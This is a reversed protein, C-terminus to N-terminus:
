VTQYRRVAKYIGNIRQQDVVMPPYQHNRPQLRITGDDQFYVRKFTTEHPQAFRVFCDDGNDVARSPSFVVIDGENYDPLMSDGVIRVAFANPDALDPCKIYDDAYGVPYGLDDFEAPYGAAVRNIIPVFGEAALTSDESLVPQENARNQKSLVDIISRLRANEQKYAEIDERLKDPMRQMYAKELLEGSGFGLLNELKEILPRAPPAVKGREITSLYPKSCGAMESLKELTLGLKKRKERIICGFEM